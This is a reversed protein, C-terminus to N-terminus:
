LLGAIKVKGFERWHLAFVFEKGSVAMENAFVYSM